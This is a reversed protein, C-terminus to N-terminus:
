QLLENIEKQLRQDVSKTLKGFEISALEIVQEILQLPLDEKVSGNTGM